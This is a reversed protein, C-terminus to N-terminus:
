INAFADAPVVRALSRPSLSKVSDVPENDELIFELWQLVGISQSGVQRWNLVCRILHLHRHPM